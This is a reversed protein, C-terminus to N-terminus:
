PKSTGLASDIVKKFFEYPYAGHIAAGNVTFGPTGNFEFTKAEAVDSDIRKKVVEGKLDKQVKTLDAGLKQTLEKLYKEGGNQFDKQNEFLADHFQIAKSKDQIAIAEMYKAATESGPFVPLHKYLVRVQGNYNSLIKKVTAAAELCHSCNFDAWEVITIKAADPGEMARDPEIVVPKPTKMEAQFKKFEEDIQESRSADVAAKQAKEVVAFFGRPDAEIAAHLIDPHETLTKKLQEPSPTCGTGLLIGALGIIAVTLNRLKM